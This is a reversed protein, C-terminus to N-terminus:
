AATANHGTSTAPVLGVGSLGIGGSDGSAAVFEGAMASEDPSRTVYGSWGASGAPIGPAGCRAEGCQSASARARWTSARQVSTTSWHRRSRAVRPRAWLRRCPAHCRSACAAAPSINASPARAGSHCAPSPMRAAPRSHDPLPTPRHLAPGSGTSFSSATSGPVISSDASLPVLPKRAFPTEALSSEPQATLLAPSTFMSPKSSM